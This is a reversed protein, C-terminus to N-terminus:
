SSPSDPARSARLGKARRYRGCTCLPNQECTCDEHVDEDTVDSAFGFGCAACKLTPLPGEFCYRTGDYCGREVRGIAEDGAVQQLTGERGCQPCFRADM